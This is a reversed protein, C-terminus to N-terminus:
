CDGPRTSECIARWAAWNGNLSSDGSQIGKHKDWTAIKDAIPSHEDKEVDNAALAILYEKINPM